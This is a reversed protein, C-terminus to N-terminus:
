TWVVERAVYQEKNGRVWQCGVGRVPECDTCGPKLNEYRLKARREKFANRVDAKTRLKTKPDENKSTKENARKRRDARASATVKIFEDDVAPDYGRAATEKVAMAQVMDEQLVTVNGKAAAMQAASTFQATLFDEAASQLTTLAAKTWHYPAVHTKGKPAFILQNVPDGNSIDHHEIERVLRSFAKQSIMLQPKGMRTDKILARLSAETTMKLINATLLAYIAASVAAKLVFLKGFGVSLPRMAKHGVPPAVSSALTPTYTIHGKLYRTLRM